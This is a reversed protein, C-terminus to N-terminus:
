YSIVDVTRAESDLLRIVDHSNGWLEGRANLFIRWTDGAFSPRWRNMNMCGNYSLNNQLYAACQGSIYSPPSLPTTCAPLERIYDFCGEGYARLNEETLPLIDEPSPCNRSMAPSFGQFQDLYGTCSNERFSVGVPSIGTAVIAREGAVLAIVDEVNVAGM